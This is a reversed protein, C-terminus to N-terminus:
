YVELIYSEKEKWEEILASAKAADIGGYKTLGHVVADKVDPVPWTPGCLYFHGKQNMLYDNLMEADEMMKHQIYIKEKQDRSFALGMHSLTGDAHYAELEEGYLYEMSRHRSGFYLVVPGIKKGAAKALYREQIFARFPAMGTGLGAMIVPQSDLPPLKMVSPKISVTVQDGVALNSLYRTCQGYRKRGSKDEWDVAVVLLHVANNYMKQSSAISYHRPKIPAIIQALEEVSPKASTFERLLDEYTTTNDVREKFDEKGEPTLLYLLQEREKPDSAFSALSEYFKKSPRGFIDLTQSFLQFVTRAEKKGNEPHNVSIIDRGNLGYWNLFAQVDQYDNHGHVGLADGLEYKLNSGSTDFELHFVNRDYSDPTLRKNESVRIVYNTEHLDPRIAEETHYADNFMLQWAAKHWKNLEAGVGQEESDAVVTLDDEEKDVVLRDLPLAPLVADSLELITWPPLLEISTLGKKVADVVDAVLAVLSVKKDGTPEKYLGALLEAPNQVRQHLILFVAEWILHTSKTSLGLEEAIRAADITYLKANLETLKFKFENTLVGEVDDGHKWPGHLVVTANKTARALTNYEKVLAINHVAVYHHNTTYGAQLHTHVAPGGVRYGDRTVRATLRPHQVLHADHLGAASSGDQEIDWFVASWAGDQTEDEITAAQIFPEAALNIFSEQESAKVLPAIHTAQLHDFSAAQASVLRPRQDRALPGFRVSAAVDQYLSGNFAYLGAGEELVIVRRASSPLAAILDAESWPRYVRVSLLGVKTNSAVAHQLSEPVSARLAVLVTEADAAGAYEFPQYNFQGLISKAVSYSETLTQQVSASVSSQLQALQSYNVLNVKEIQKAATVGNFFHVVPLQLTHALLHATIAMDHAEQASSSSLLIAGTNRAALVADVNASAVLDQDVSQAAIHFVVPQHQAVLIHLNPIMSLLAQSSALVSLNKKNDALAGQVAQLAGFRTEMEIVKVLQQQANRLSKQSYAKLEQGLSDGTLGPYLFILDSLAFAAYGVAHNANLLRANNSSLIYELADKVKSELLISQDEDVITTQSGTTSSADLDKKLEDTVAKVVDTSLDVKEFAKNTPVAKSKVLSAVLAVSAFM